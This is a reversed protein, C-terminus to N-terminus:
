PIKGKTSKLTHWDLVDHKQFSGQKSTKSKGLVKAM